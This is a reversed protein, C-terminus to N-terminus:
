APELQDVYVRVRQGIRLDPNARLTRKDVTGDDYRFTIEYVTERDSQSAIKSGIYGGALAGAVTAVQKGTGSGIQNGLFGGILAGGVAGVVQTDPNKREYQSVGIVTAYRPETPTTACGAVLITLGVLLAWAHRLAASM